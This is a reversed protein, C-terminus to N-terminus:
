SVCMMSLTSWSTSEPPKGVIGAPMASEIGVRASKKILKRYVEHWNQGKPAPFEYYTAYELECRARTKVHSSELLPCLMVPTGKAPIILLFPREHVNNAFNTLYYINVPDFSVYCDLRKKKMLARVKELRRALEEKDPPATIAKPPEPM